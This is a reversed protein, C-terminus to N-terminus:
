EAETLPEESGGFIRDRNMGAAGLRGIDAPFAPDAAQVARKCRRNM